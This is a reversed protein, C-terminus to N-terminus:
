ADPETETPIDLCGAARIDEPTLWNFGGNNDHNRIDPYRCRSCRYGLVDGQLEEVIGASHPVLEGGPTTM